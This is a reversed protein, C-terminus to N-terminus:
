EMVPLDVTFTTGRGLESEVEIDGGLKRACEQAITLGLGIGGVTEVNKGRHFPDFMYKIDDAAIGSGNDKVKTIIRDGLIKQSIHIESGAPSFKVANSLLNRFIHIL